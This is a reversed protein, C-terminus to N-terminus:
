YSLVAPPVGAIPSDHIWEMAGGCSPTRPVAGPPTTIGLATTSVLLHLGFTFPVEM